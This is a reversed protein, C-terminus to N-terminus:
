ISIGNLDRLIMMVEMCAHNLFIFLCAYGHRLGSAHIGRYMM